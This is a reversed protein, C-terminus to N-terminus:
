RIHLCDNPYYHFNPEIERLPDVLDRQVQDLLGQHPLHVGTLCTRPDNAFDEVPSVTSFNLSKSSVQSAIRDIVEKQKLQHTTVTM